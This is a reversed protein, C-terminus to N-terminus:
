CLHKCYNVAIFKKPKDAYGFINHNSCLGVNERIDFRAKALDNM